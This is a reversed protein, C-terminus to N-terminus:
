NDAELAQAAAAAEAQERVNRQAEEARLGDHGPWKYTPMRNLWDRSISPLSAMADDYEPKPRRTQKFNIFFMAGQLAAQIATLFLSAKFAIVKQEWSADYFFKAAVAAITCVGGKIWNGISRSPSLVITATISVPNFVMPFLTLPINQNFAYTVAAFLPSFILAPEMLSRIDDEKDQIKMEKLVTEQNFKNKSTQLGERMTQNYQTFLQKWTDGDRKVHYLYHPNYTPIGRGHFTKPRGLEWDTSTSMSKFIPGLMDDSHIKSTIDYMRQNLCPLSLLSSAQREGNLSKGPSIFDCFKAIGIHLDDSLRSFFDKKGLQHKYELKNEKSETHTIATPQSFSPIAIM